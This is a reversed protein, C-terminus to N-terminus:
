RGLCYSANHVSVIAVTFFGSHIEEKTSFYFVSRCKTHIYAAHKPHDTLPVIYDTAKLEMDRWTREENIKDFSIQEETRRALTKLKQELIFQKVNIIM